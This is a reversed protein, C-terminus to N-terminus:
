ELLKWEADQILQKPIKREIRAPRIRNPIAAMMPQEDDVEIEITIPQCMFEWFGM